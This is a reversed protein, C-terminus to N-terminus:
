PLRYSSCANQQSKSRRRLSYTAHQRCSRSTVVPRFLHNSLSALVVLTSAATHVKPASSYTATTNVALTGGRVASINPLAERLPLSSGLGFTKSKKCLMSVLASINVEPVSIPYRSEQFVSKSRQTGVSKSFNIPPQIIQYNFPYVRNGCCHCVKQALRM